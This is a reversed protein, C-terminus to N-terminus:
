WARDIVFAGNTTVVRVPAGGGGLRTTFQRPFPGQVPVPINIQMVGHVTGTTLAAHYGDPIVLSVPGNTTEADLGEGVWRSDALAVALPGNIARAHLAGGVNSLSLPGNTVRLEMRGVVGGVSLEGNNTTLRLDMRRPVLIEYSVVYGRGRGEQPGEAYIEGDATHVVIRGAIARAEEATPAWAKIRKRVLMDPGDWARVLVGGNERGDVSLSRPAALREERQECYHEGSTGRCQAMWERSEWDQAASVRPFLALATAAVIPFTRM